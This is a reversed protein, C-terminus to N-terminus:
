IKKWGEGDAYVLIHVYAKNDVNKQKNKLALFSFAKFCIFALTRPVGFLIPEIMLESRILKNDGAALLSTLLRKLM